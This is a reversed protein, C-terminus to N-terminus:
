FWYTVYTGLVTREYDYVGINSRNDRWSGAISAELHENIPRALEATVRHIRDDRESGPEFVSDHRYDRRAFRYDATLVLQWPLEVGFGVVVEGGDYDFETGETDLHDSLLGLWVYRVREGAFFFQNAGFTHQQGDRDLAPDDVDVLLDDDNYQYYLQTLGWREENVTITPTIRHLRRFREDLDLDTYAFDYRLGLRVRDVRVSGSTWGVHTQQDVESEDFHLSGYGDYGAELEFREDDILRYSGQLRLIGAFDSDKSFVEGVALPNSDWEMGTTAGLTWRRAPLLPALRSRLNGASRGLPHTPSQDALRDFTGAAAPLDGLFAQALGTYYSADRVLEPDLTAAADLQEIAAAYNGLRYEAIGALLRARARNPERALVEDFSQRAEEARGLELLSTGLDFRLDTDEPAHDLARRYLRSAEEPNGEAQAILGLYHLAAVDEPDEVLVREFQSRAEAWRGEGYAAVGRHFALESEVSARLPSAGLLLM